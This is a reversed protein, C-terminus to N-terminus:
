STLLHWLHHAEARPFCDWRLTYSLALVYLRSLGPSAKSHLAETDLEKKAMRLNLWKYVEALVVKEEWAPESQQKNQKTKWQGDLARFVHICTVLKDM